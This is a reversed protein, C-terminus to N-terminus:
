PLVQYWHIAPPPHGLPHPWHIGDTSLLIAAITHGVPWSEPSLPKGRAIFRKCVQLAQLKQAPMAPPSAKEAQSGRICMRLRGARSGACRRGGQMGADQKMRTARKAGSRWQGEHTGLQLQAKDGGHDSQADDSNSLNMSNSFASMATRYTLCGGM